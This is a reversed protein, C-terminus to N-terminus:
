RPRSVATSARVPYAIVRQGPRVADRRLAHEGLDTIGRLLEWALSVASKPFGYQRM